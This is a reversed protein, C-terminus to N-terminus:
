PKIGRHRHERLIKHIEVKNRNRRAVILAVKLERANYRSMDPHLAM